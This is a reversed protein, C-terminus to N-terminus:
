VPDPLGHRRLLAPLNQSFASRPMVMDCGAEQAKQKLDAQLHSLFGILATRKLEPRHRLKGITALPKLSTSNLDLIILSPPDVTKELLEQDTKALQISVKLQRATEQIKALFFLDDVAVLIRKVAGNDSGQPASGNGNFAMPTNTTSM